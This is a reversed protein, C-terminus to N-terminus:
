EIKYTFQNRMGKVEVPAGNQIKPQYRFKKAAEVSPRRFLWSDCASEVVSVDRVTGDRAVTYEVTCIGEVGRNLAKQPYVPAIKLIPLYESEVMAGLNFGIDSMQIKAKISPQSVPMPQAQTPSDVSLEPLRPQSPPTKPPKPKEIREQKQQVVETKKIRVFDIMGRGSKEGVTLNQGYIISQLGWVMLCSLLAGLVLAVLLSLLYKGGM